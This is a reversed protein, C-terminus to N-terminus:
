SGEAEYLSETAILQARRNWLKVELYLDDPGLSTVADLAVLTFREDQTLECQDLTEDGLEATAIAGGRVLPTGWVM